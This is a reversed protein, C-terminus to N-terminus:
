ETMYEEVADWAESSELGLKWEAVGAIEYASMVSLKAKLSEFDEMWIQYITQNMEKEGYYQCTTDDWILDVGNDNCWKKASGMGLTESNTKGDKTKWVRTYFPVANIIKSYPVDKATNVIGEEVFGISAVSGAEESSAWHEDYGMVVVYDCVEGQEKRNYHLTSATPAYNDVSLVINNMHTKISLERLFESWDDGADSPIKEFDLNIGDIGNELTKSIMTDILANRKDTSHLVAGMDVENDVDTWVAWVKVNAAHADNVYSSSAISNVNGEEDSIRFWTPAIVNIMKTSSAESFSGQSFIQHFVMNVKGDFKLSNYTLQVVPEEPKITEDAGIEIRKREIYGIMGEDTMVKIWDELEELVYLKEEEKVDELIESKIGGKYRVASDKLVTAAPASVEETYIVLHKPNDFYTYKVDTFLKLYDLSVFIQGQNTVVPSASLPKQEDGDFYCYGDHQNMDARYIKDATAFLVIQEDLNFYFRDTFYKNVIDESLYITDNYYDAMEEVRENNVIMAVQYDYVIDFYDNLDAYEGSYTYKEMLKSGYFLGVAVAILILAVVVPIIKELASKRKRKRRRQVSSQPRNGDPNRRSGQREDPRRGPHNAGQRGQRHNDQRRRQEEPRM